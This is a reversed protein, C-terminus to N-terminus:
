RQRITELWKEAEEIDTFGRVIYKDQALEKMAKICKELYKKDQTIVACKNGTFISMVEKIEGTKKVMEMHLKTEDM